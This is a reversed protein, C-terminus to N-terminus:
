GHRGRLALLGLMLSAGGGILLALGSPEPTPIMVVAATTGGEAPNSTPVSQTGPLGASSSSSSSSPSPNSTRNRQAVYPAAGSGGGMPFAGSGANGAFQSGPSAAAPKPASSMADLVPGEDASAPISFLPDGPSPNLSALYMDGPAEPKDLRDEGPEGANMVPEQPLASLRNGCRARAFSKGDTVVYEGRPIRHKTKTWYVEDNKRYSVYMYTDQVTKRVSVSNGFGAYHKAVVSDIRRSRALEESSYVGGSIVSLPYVKRGRTEATLINARRAALVSGAAKSARLHRFQTRAFVGLWLVLVLAVAACLLKGVSRM